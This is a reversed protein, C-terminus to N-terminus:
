YEPMTMQNERVNLTKNVGSEFEERPENFVSKLDSFRSIIFGYFCFRNRCICFYVMDFRHPIFLKAAM